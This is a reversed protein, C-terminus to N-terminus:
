AGPASGCSSSGCFHGGLKARPTYSAKHEAAAAVAGGGQSYGAFGVPSDAPVGAAQLGARAADLVAHAEEVSNVYTHAGPSGLGIYDTSIIRIGTLNALYQLPLEYNANASLYPQGAANNQLNFASFLDPTVSPACQDGAGRAGPAMVITPTPGNGQWPTTPGNGQWPTTPEIVYGTVDVPADNSDQSAYRIRQASGPLQPGVINLLHPAPTAELLTGPAPGAPAAAAPTITASDPTVAEDAHAASAGASTLLGAAM